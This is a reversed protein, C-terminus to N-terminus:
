IIKSRVRPEITMHNKDKAFAFATYHMVSYFDYPAGFHSVQEDNYKKFNHRHKEQINEEHITVYNDRDHVCQEHFFGLATCIM